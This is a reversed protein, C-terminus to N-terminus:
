SIKHPFFYIVQSGNFIFKVVYSYVKRLFYVFLIVCNIFIDINVIRRHIYFRSYVLNKFHQTPMKLFLIYSNKLSTKIQLNFVHINYIKQVTVGNKREDMVNNAKESGEIHIKNIWINWLRLTFFLLNLFQSNPQEETECSITSAM